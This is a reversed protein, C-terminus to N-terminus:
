PKELETWVNVTYCAWYRGDWKALQGIICTKPLREFPQAWKDLFVHEKEKREWDASVEKDVCMM